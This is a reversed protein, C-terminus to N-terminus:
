RGPLRDLGPPLPEADRAVEAARAHRALLREEDPWRRDLIYLLPDVPMLAGGAGRRRVEFHLHPSLSWGSSGVVALVEGRRVTQRAAVKLEGCHGYLTLFRDGHAVAVLNGYRWWAPSRALPYIGAFLVVGDAPALVPTGRPAALDIGAHFALDHSFASRQRGFPNTLVYREGRLPCAAPTYRAEDPHAGEFARVATLAAEVEGIEGRIRARLREGQRVTGDYISEPVAGGAPGTGAAAAGAGPGAATGAAAAAGAGGGAIEYAVSVKRVRSGLDESRTRLQELRGVLALLREGLQAREAALARYEESGFLGAVVGPAMGAAAALLFLYALGLASWWTLRARTLRFYRVRGRSGAPHVQVEFSAAAPASRPSDRV